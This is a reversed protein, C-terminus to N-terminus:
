HRQAGDREREDSATTSAVAAHSTGAAVRSGDPGAGASVVVGAAGVVSRSTSM